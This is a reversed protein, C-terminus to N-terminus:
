PRWASPCSSSGTGEGLLSWFALVLFLFYASDIQFPYFFAFRVNVWSFLFFFVGLGAAKPSGSEGELLRFLIFASLYIALFNFLPWATEVPLPILWILAALIAAAVAANKRM